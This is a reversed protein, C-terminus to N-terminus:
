SCEEAIPFGPQPIEASERHDTIANRMVTKRPRETQERRMSFSDNGALNHCESASLIREVQDFRFPLEVPLLPLGKAGPIGALLRGRVMGEGLAMGRRRRFMQRLVVDEVHKGIGRPRSQVDAMRLAVGGRIDESTVPAGPAVMHKMGHTPVGEAQRGLLVGDLGALM